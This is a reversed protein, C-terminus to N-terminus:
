FPADSWGCTLCHANGWVTLQCLPNTICTPCPDGTVRYVEGAITVTEGRIWPGVVTITDGHIGRLVTRMARQAVKGESDGLPDSLILTSM